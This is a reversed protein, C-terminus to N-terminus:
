VSPLRPRGAHTPPISLRAAAREAPARTAARVKGCFVCMFKQHQSIEMKKVQKRLSAGYRTGYKGTVGM